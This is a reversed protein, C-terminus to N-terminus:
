LTVKEYQAFLDEYYHDMEELIVALPKLDDNPVTYKAKIIKEFLQSNRLRSIPIGLGVGRRTLDYLYKITSLMLYQKTLPVFTDQPHFANQQLFGVRIIRAIELVLRESDPLVDEGVLQVIDSLRAEQHLIGLMEGRLKMVDPSVHDEYWGGLVTVYSSYSNLWNISPYHRAYALSRDLALFAGVFRKTNETVPESFDGGAPSVAGIITVSGQSDGLTTVM